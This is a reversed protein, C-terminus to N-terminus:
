KANRNGYFTAMHLDDQISMGKIQTASDWAKLEYPITWAPIINIDPKANLQKDFIKDAITEALIKGLRMGTAWIEVIQQEGDRHDPM